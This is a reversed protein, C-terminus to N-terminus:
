KESRLAEIKYTVGGITVLGNNEIAKRLILSSEATAGIFVGLLISSIVILVMGVNM